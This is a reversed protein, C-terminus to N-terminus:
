RSCRSVAKSFSNGVRGEKTPNDWGIILSQAAQGRAKKKRSRPNLINRRGGDEPQERGTQLDRGTDALQSVKMRGKRGRGGELIGLKACLSKLERGESDKERSGKKRSKGYDKLELPESTSSTSKHQYKTVQKVTEWASKRFSRWFDGRAVGRV